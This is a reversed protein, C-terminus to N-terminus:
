IAKTFSLSCCGQTMGYFIEWQVWRWCLSGTKLDGMVVFAAQLEPSDYQTYANANIRHDVKYLQDLPASYEMDLNEGPERDAILVSADLHKDDKMTTAGGAFLHSNIHAGYFSPPSNIKHANCNFASYGGDNRMESSVDTDAKKLVVIIQSSSLLVRMSLLSATLKVVPLLILEFSALYAYVVALPPSAVTQIYLIPLFKRCLM